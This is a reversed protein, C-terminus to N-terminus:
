KSNLIVDAAGEDHDIEVALNKSFTASKIKIRAKTYNEHIQEKLNMIFLELPEENFLRIAANTLYRNMTTSASLTDPQACIGESEVLSIIM